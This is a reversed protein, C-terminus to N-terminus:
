LLSDRNGVCRSEGMRESQEAWVPFLFAGVPGLGPKKLNGCVALHSAGRGSSVLFMRTAERLLGCGERIGGPSGERGEVAMTVTPYATGELSVNRTVNKLHRLLNCVEPVQWLRGTGQGWGKGVRCKAGPPLSM